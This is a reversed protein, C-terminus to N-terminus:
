REEGVSLVLDGNDRRRAAGFVLIPARRLYVYFALENAFLQWFEADRRSAVMAARDLPRSRLGRGWDLVIPSPSRTAQPRQQEVSWDVLEWVPTDRPREDGTVFVRVWLPGSFEVVWQRQDGWADVFRRGALLEGDAEARPQRPNRAAIAAEISRHGIIRGAREVAIVTPPPDSPQTM